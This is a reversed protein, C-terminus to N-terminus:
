NRRDSRIECSVKGQRQAVKFYAEQCGCPLTRIRLLSVGGYGGLIASENLLGACVDINQRTFYHPFRKYFIGSEQVEPLPPLDRM